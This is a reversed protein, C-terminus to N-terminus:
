FIRISPSFFVLSFGNLFYLITLFTPIIIQVFSTADFGVHRGSAVVPLCKFGIYFVLLIYCAIIVKDVIGVTHATTLYIASIIVSINAIINM